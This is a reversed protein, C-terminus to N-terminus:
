RNENNSEWERASIFIYREQAILWITGHEYNTEDDFWVRVVAGVGYDDFDILEGVKM